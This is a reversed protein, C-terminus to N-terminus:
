VLWLMVLMLFRVSMSVFRLLVKGFSLLLVVM